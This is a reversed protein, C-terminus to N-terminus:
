RLWELEKCRLGFAISTYQSGQGETGSPFTNGAKSTNAILTELNLQWGM